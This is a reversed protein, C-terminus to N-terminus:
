QGAAGFKHRVNPPLAELPLRWRGGVKQAAIRKSKLLASLHNRGCGFAKCLETVTCLRSWEVPAAAPAAARSVEAGVASHLAKLADATPHPLGARRYTEPAALRRCLEELDPVDASVPDARLARMIGVAGAGYVDLWVVRAAEGLRWAADLALAGPWGPPPGFTSKGIAAALETPTRGGLRERLTAVCLELRALGDKQVGPTLVGSSPPCSVFMGVLGILTHACEGLARM